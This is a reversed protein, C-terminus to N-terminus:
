AHADLAINWAGEIRWLSTAEMGATRMGEVEAPAGLGVQQRPRLPLLDGAMEDVARHDSM